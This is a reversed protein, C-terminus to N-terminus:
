KGIPDPFPYDVFVIADSAVVKKEKDGKLKAAQRDERAQRADVHTLRDTKSLEQV